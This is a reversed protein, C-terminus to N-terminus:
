GHLSALMQMALILALIAGGVTVRNDSSPATGSKLKM